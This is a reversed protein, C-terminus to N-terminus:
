VGDGCIYPNYRKEREITTAGGHGPYVRTDDPLTFLRAKAYHLLDTMSGRPFDTRGISGDFLTDGSLLIGNAYYCAGGPTHGPTHIVQLEEGGIKITDGHSVTKEQVNAVYNTGFLVSLNLRPDHLMPADERHIYVPCNKSLALDEVLDIHDFHGHTLIIADLQMGLQSLASDIQRVDGSPDVVACATKEDDYVLYTNSDMGYSVLPLVKM